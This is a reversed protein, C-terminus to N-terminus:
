LDAEDARALCERCRGMFELRHGEVQFGYREAVRRVEDYVNCGEAPIVRGCETCVLHHHHGTECVTYGHCGNDGHVRGLLGIEALLELTRFVTARGISPDRDNVWREVDNSTFVMERDAVAEVITRRGPTVSYGRENLVRAMRESREAM